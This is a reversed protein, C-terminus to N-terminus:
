RGRRTAVRDGATIERQSAVVLAVSSQRDTRLVRLEGVIEDPFTSEDGKIPTTEIPVNEPSDMRMRDRVNKKATDLTRRWTDGRRVVFLRNGPKLGDDSGRDVFVIQHQAMYVHPYISTLVRAWLDVDAPRPAVVDFRRAVPGVLAGREIVDVSEVIRGRAIGKKPDFRDIRVSGKIAIIQGPPQRAGAVKKPTRVPRYITLRQGPKLQKGPRVQLYVNNGESLLMQDEAAGIIEAWEDRKPDDIYGQQRLYITGGPVGAAGEPGSDGAGPGRGGGGIWGARDDAGSGGPGAGGGRPRMRVQDGPYIWHPNTIAPNLGWVEPWRWADGLYTASLDWLTDGKQVVHVEPTEGEFRPGGETARGDGLYLGEEEAPPTGPEQPGGPQQPVVYITPAGAQGAQGPVAVAGQPPLYPNPPPGPPRERPTSPDIYIQAAAAAPVLMLALSAVAAIRM